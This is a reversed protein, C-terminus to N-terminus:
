LGQLQATLFAGINANDSGTIGAGYKGMVFAMSDGVPSGLEIDLVTVYQVFADIYEMASAYQSGEEADEFVAAISAAMEPTFPVDAPALTNFSQVLAAMRSGNEDRLINAANVLAECAQCPQISPNLALANGIGVQLTEAAIGLEVAAAQTLGPCGEIRPIVFQVLPAVPAFFGEEECPCPPCDPCDTRKSYDQIYLVADGDTWAIEGHEGMCYYSGDYPEGLYDLMMDGPVHPNDSNDSDAWAWIGQGKRASTDVFVDSAYVRTTAKNIADYEGFWGARSKIRAEGGEYTQVLVEGPACIVTKATNEGLTIKPEPISVELLAEVTPIVPYEYIPIADHAWALIQAEADSGFAEVDVNGTSYYSGDYITASFLTGDTLEIVDSPSLDAGAAVGVDATNTHAGQAEAEIGAHGRNYALVDVCGERSVVVAKADASSPETDDVSGSSEAESRIVADCGLLYMEGVQVLVDDVACVGVYADTIFGNKAQALIEADGGRRGTVDVGGQTCVITEATNMYGDKAKSSIGAEGGRDATVEVGEEGKAGIGVSATNSYGSRALAEIESEGGCSGKVKVDGDICVLVDATNTAANIAIAEIEAEGGCEAIVKVDGGGILVEEGDLATAASANITVNATNSTVDTDSDDRSMFYAGSAYATIAAKGDDKAIVKVDGGVIESVEEFEGKDVEVLETKVVAAANITVDATNSNTAYEARAEIKATDAIRGIDIVKVDGGVTNITVGATNNAAFEAGTSIEAEGNMALVKVDGGANIQVDATNNKTDPVVDPIVSYPVENWATAGIYAWGWESKVKVDDGAAIDVSSSNTVPGSETLNILYTYCGTIENWAETDIEVDSYGCGQAIAKVDDGADIMIDSYNLIPGTVTLDVPGCYDKYLINYAEVDIGAIGSNEAFVLVDGNDAVSDGCEIDGDDDAATTIVIDADNKVSGLTLDLSGEFGCLEIENYALANIFASSEYGDASVEVSKAEIDVKATNAIGQITGVAGYPEVDRYTLDTYDEVDGENRALAEIEAQGGSEAVVLVKGNKSSGSDQEGTVTIDVNATNTYSYHAEAEIAADSGKGVAKVKVYDGANITTTSDNTKGYWTESDIDVEGGDDAWAMVKGGADVTTKATNTGDGAYVEAEIGAGANYGATAIVRVDDGADIVTEATNNNTGDEAESYISATSTIGTTSDAKVTVDDGASVAVKATNNQVDGTDRFAKAEIEASGHNAIVDVDGLADVTVDATNNQGDVAYADISAEAWTNWSADAKVKVYGDADVDVKSTSTTGGYAGAYIYAGYETDPESNEAIVEVNGGADVTTTATNVNGGYAEAYLGADDGDVSIEVDGGATVTVTATANNSGDGYGEAEAGVEDTITVNGAADIDVSAAADSGGDSYASVYATAWIDGAALIVHQADISGDDANSARYDYCGPTQEPMSVEVAVSSGTETILVSEGAALVVYGDEAVLAGTNSVIKGILYIREATITDTSKNLVYGATDGGTFTYPSGNLFDIDDLNLSSAVLQAVNVTAGEGFVIGAPNIVFVKGNTTLTGMIGTVDGDHVRNLVAAAAGPQHFEVTSSSGIDFNEWNVIAESATQTMDMRGLSYVPADIGTRDIVGSPLAGAAPNEVAMAVRVPIGFCFLMYFVLWCSVIQRLYYEKSIKRLKKM